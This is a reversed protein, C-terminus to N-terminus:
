KKKGLSRPELFVENLKWNFREPKKGVDKKKEKKMESLGIGTFVLGAV